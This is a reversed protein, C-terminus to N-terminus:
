HQDAGTPHANVLKGEIRLAAVQRELRDDM